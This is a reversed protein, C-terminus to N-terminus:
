KRNMSSFTRDASLVSVRKDVSNSQLSNVPCFGQKGNLSAFCWGDDFESEVNVEDGVTLTLEDDRQATYTIIVKRLDNVTAVGPVPVQMLEQQPHSQVQHEPTTIPITMNNNTTVQVFGQFALITAPLYGAVGTAIQVGYAMGDAWTKYLHLTEGSLIMLEGEFRPLHPQLAQAQM